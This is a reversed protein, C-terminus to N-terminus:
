NQRVTAHAEWLFLMVHALARFRWANRFLLSRVETGGRPCGPKDQCPKLKMKRGNQPILGQLETALANILAHERIHTQCIVLFPLGSGVGSDVQENEVFVLLGAADRNQASELGAHSNWSMNVWLGILEYIHKRAFPLLSSYSIGVARKEKSRSPDRM